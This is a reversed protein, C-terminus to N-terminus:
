MERPGFIATGIRVLTSGHQIAERWDGSMGMSLVTLDPYHWCCREFLIQMERFYYVPDEDFPPIAMLGNVSIHPFQQCFELFSELENPSIGSKQSELGINVQILISMHKQCKEAEQDIISLLKKRDVSQIMDFNAVIKAIKNSQIHGIFHWHIDELQRLNEIKPLADQLYNEGFDHVGLAYAAEIMEVPKRKSVALLQVHPPLKIKALNNRIRETLESKVM